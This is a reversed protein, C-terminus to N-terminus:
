WPASGSASVGNGFVRVTVPGTGNAFLCRGNWTYGNGTGNTTLAIGSVFGGARASQCEVQFRANPPFSRLDFDIEPCGPSYTCS